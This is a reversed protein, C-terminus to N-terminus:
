LWEPARTIWEEISRGDIEATPTVDTSQLAALFDRITSRLERL